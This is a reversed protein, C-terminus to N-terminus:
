YLSKRSAGGGFTSVVDGLKIGSPQGFNVASADMPAPAVPATAGEGSVSAKPEFASAPMASVPGNSIPGLTM